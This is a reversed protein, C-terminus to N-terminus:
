SESVNALCSAVIRTEEYSIEGGLHEFVPKLRGAGVQEMAERVRTATEQDVWPSPDAIGEQRLYQGLYGRVTSEARGM